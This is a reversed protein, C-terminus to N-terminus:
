GIPDHGDFCPIGLKMHSQSFSPSTPIPSSPPSPPVITMAALHELISDFKANTSAQIQALNQALSSQGQTLRTVAEELRDITAQRTNHNSPSMPAPWAM